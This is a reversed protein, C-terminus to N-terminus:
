ACQPTQPAVGHLPWPTWFNALDTQARCFARDMSHPMGDARRLLAQRVAGQRHLAGLMNAAAILGDHTKMSGAKDVICVALADLRLNASSDTRAAASCSALSDIDGQALHLETKVQEQHRGIYTMDRWATYANPAYGILLALAIAPAAYILKQKM